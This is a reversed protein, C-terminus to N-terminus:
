IEIASKALEDCKTNFNNGAHGKTWKFLIIKNKQATKILEYTELILEKNKIPKKSYTIYGNTKWTHIYERYAKIGYISDSIIIQYPKESFKEVAIKIGTLEGINNTGDSVSGSYQEFLFTKGTFDDTLGNSNEESLHCCAYGALSGKKSSFSGDTYSIGIKEDSVINLINIAPKSDYNFLKNLVTFVSYLAELSWDTGTYVCYKLINETNFNEPVSDVMPILINDFCLRHTKYKAGYPYEKLIDNTLLDELISSNECSLSFLIYNM